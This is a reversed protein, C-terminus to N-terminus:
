AWDVAVTTEEDDSTLGLFIPVNAVPNMIALFGMFVTVAHLLINEM